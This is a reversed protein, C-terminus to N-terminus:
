AKLAATRVTLSGPSGSRDVASAVARERVGTNRDRTAPHLPHAYCAATGAEASLRLLAARTFMGKSGWTAPTQLALARSLTHSLSPM